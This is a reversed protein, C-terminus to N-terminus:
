CIKDIKKIIQTFKDIDKTKLLVESSLFGSDLYKVFFSLTESTAYDIPKDFELNALILSKFLFELDFIEIESEYFCHGLEKNINEIFKKFLTMVLKIFSISIEDINEKIVDNTDYFVFTNVINSFCSDNFHNLHRQFIEFRDSDALKTENLYQLHKALESKFINLDKKDIEYNLLDAQLNKVAIEKNNTGIGKLKLLVEQRNSIHGEEISDNELNSFTSEIGNENYHFRLNDRRGISSTFKVEWNHIRTVNQNQISRKLNEIISNLQPSYNTEEKSSYLIVDKILHGLDKKVDNLIKQRGESSNKTKAKNLVIYIDVNITEEKLKEIREKQDKSISGNNIDMVWFLVDADNKIVNETLETDGGIPNKEKSFADEAREFGPTDLLSIDRVFEWPGEVFFFASEKVTLTTGHQIMDRYDDSSIRKKIGNAKMIFFAKKHSFSFTTVSSTTSKDSVPCIEQQILSNIFSSKGASFNGVVAVRVPQQSGSVLISQQLLNKAGKELKKLLEKEVPLYDDEDDYDWLDTYIDNYQVIDVLLNDLLNDPKPKINEM